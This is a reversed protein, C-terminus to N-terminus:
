LVDSYYTGSEYSTLVRKLVSSVHTCREVEGASVGRNWPGLNVGKKMALYCAGIKKAEVVDRNAM